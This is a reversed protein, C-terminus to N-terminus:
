GSSTGGGSLKEQKGRIASFNTGTGSGYKFLRAESKALEFISMLDDEVSQIYCASAQPRVYSDEIEEVEGKEFNWAFNGASGRIGYKTSLGVNFWVPSNFAGMQNVLMYALEDRFIQAERPGSFYGHERGFDAITDVIRSIVQKVSVEHGTGPVGAKRFYKSVVIDTALQSWQEPVEVGRMEFVVSGDPETIVSDRKVYKVDDLPDTGETTFMRHLRYGGSEQATKRSKKGVDFLNESM